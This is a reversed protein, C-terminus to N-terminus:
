PACEKKIRKLLSLLMQETLKGTYTNQPSPHYAGFLSPWGQVDVKKGHMFSESKVLVGTKQLFRQYSDFALKGLALIATLNKLLFFENEFYPSCNAFEEKLPRNNPPVCKVIPTLYCGKLQLGDDIHESASQNALQAQHMVKFLFRASEDGTFIRGTRNAGQASPALGLILLWAKPDGFGPIPKRWYTQTIYQRRAPAQERFHVLRPCKRCAIVCRNLQDFSRHIM